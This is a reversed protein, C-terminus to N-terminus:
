KITGYKIAKCKYKASGVRCTATKNKVDLINNFLCLSKIASSKNVPTSTMTSIPSGDTFGELSSFLDAELIDKFQKQKDCKGSQKYLKNINKLCKQEYLANNSLSQDIGVIHVHDKLLPSQLVGKLM